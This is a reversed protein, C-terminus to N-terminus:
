YKFAKLIPKIFVKCTKNYKFHFAAVRADAPDLQGQFYIENYILAVDLPSLVTDTSVFGQVDDDLGAKKGLSPQLQRTCPVM